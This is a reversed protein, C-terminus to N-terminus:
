QCHSVDGSAYNYEDDWTSDSGCVRNPKRQFSRRSDMAMNALADAMSNRACPHHQWSNVALKDAMRRSQRYLPRLHKARPPTRTKQQHIIL